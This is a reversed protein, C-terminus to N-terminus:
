TGSFKLDDPSKESQATKKKASKKGDGLDIETGSFQSLVNGFFERLGVGPEAHGKEVLEDRITHWEALLMKRTKTGEKTGFLYYGFAGACLGLVFGTMFQTPPSTEDM